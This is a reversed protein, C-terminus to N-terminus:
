RHVHPPRLPHCQDPSRAWGRPREDSPMTGLVGGFPDTPSESSGAGV